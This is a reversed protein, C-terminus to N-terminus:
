QIEKTEEPNTRYAARNLLTARPILDIQHERGRMPTLRPPIESPFVDEYEQLPNTVAPPLSSAIDHLSFLARKCILAYCTDDDSIEAIDCKTELMVADKLKIGDGKSIHTSNDKKPAFVSNAVKSFKLNLIM